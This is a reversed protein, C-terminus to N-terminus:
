SKVRGGKDENKAKGKARGELFGQKKGGESGRRGKEPDGPRSVVMRLLSARRHGEWRLAGRGIRLEGPDRRREQAGQEGRNGRGRLKVRRGWSTDREGRVHRGTRSM